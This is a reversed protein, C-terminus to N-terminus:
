VEGIGNGIDREHIVKVQKLHEALQEKLKDPLMTTQDKEGKGDRVTLQSRDFDIDKVRLRSCEM